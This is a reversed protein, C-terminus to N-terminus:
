QGSARLETVHTSDLKTESGRGHPLPASLDWYRGPCLEPIEAFM